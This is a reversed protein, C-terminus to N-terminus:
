DTYLRRSRAPRLNVFVPNRFTAGTLLCQGPGLAPVTQWLAEHVGGTTQRVPALNAASKLQHIFRTNVLEFLEDPVHGPQQSVLALAMWRKRGRRSIVQLQDIVARMRAARSRSVFTHVEEIVVMLKPRARGNPMEQGLSTAVIEEFLAQLTYAIAINRSTDSSDSVDLISLRGEKLLELIPLEDVKATGYWDLMNSHGLRILKRRLVRATSKETGTISTLLPFDNSEDLGDILSQLTYPRSEDRASQPNFPGMRNGTSSPADREAKAIALTLMREQPESLDKLIESLVIPDIRSMPVKFPQAALSDSSGSQPVYIKADAVGAPEMRFKDALISAMASDSNPQDMQVYEGEVDIVVVAWGANLAEEVIVQTTNSKGSGVTGFVGVNRPLFNKSEGDARVAVKEYRMLHGLLLDGGLGLMAELRDAPFLYARAYPRPRTATPVIREHERIEGLIEVTGYVYYSPRFRTRDPHLITTRTLASDASVEHPTHFPGEVIRGLFETDQDEDKIGIYVERRFGRRTEAPVMLATTLSDVRGSDFNVFGFPVESLASAIDAEADAEAKQQGSVLNSTTGNGRLTPDLDSLEQDGRIVSARTM